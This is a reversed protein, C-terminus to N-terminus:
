GAPAEALGGHTGSWGIPDDLFAEVVSLTREDFHRGERCIRLVDRWTALRHLTLGAEALVRPGHPFVDYDFIVFAHDVVAGAERLAMAFSAKSRGDSSLDEVLLVRQGPALDGEIRANRGFGKPRKRVYQMPLDLRDALWAAYAIGATEGGAVADLREFGIDRLVTAAAFDTLVGRIRPYSILRRIDVYVPSAWGSTFKFPTDADVGVAKVELLARVTLTAVTEADPFSPAAFM